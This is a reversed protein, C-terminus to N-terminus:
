KIHSKIILWALTSPQMFLFMYYRLVSHLPLGQMISGCALADVSKHKPMLKHGKENHIICKRAIHLRSLLRVM